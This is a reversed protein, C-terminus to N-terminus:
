EYRVIREEIGISRKCHPCELYLVNYGERQDYFESKIYEKNFEFVCECYNCSGQYVEKLGRGEQLIKFAM